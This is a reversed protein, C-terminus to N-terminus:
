LNLIEQTPTSSTLASADLAPAIASGRTLPESADRAYRLHPNGPRRVIEREVTPTLPKRAQELLAKFYPVRFQNYRRMTTIAHAIRESALSHGQTDLEKAANRVLGQARRLNGFVDATFLEALLRHLELHIFRAQSLLHQPTTEYYALSNPPFHADIRTRRGDKHRCRPHIALRECDLFIEVQNETLKIRLRRHRYTHPASYYDGEVLVYCDAYLTADKWEANEFAAAPLPKLAAKEMQEFRARRSVGFRSHKRENIKLACDALARNIEALSTFRTRRYRFRVYRMLIGVVGEVIAKDKPHAPRAPVITTGYHTGLEAYSPNLDPDYLHCKLVGTKLCDPVTVHPVGGYFEFLRRHSGLWNRSKMDEAAHAFLLQSFGLAGIFVYAAHIEGSVLDVWEMTDGAYDVEVREGPMFERATVSAQRYEPYKRYFQKWFNSYSTLSQAQEEWISKLAHGLGLDHIIAPWNLHRMWVPDVSAKSEGPARRTGDRVGRVTDRSCKLARAIERVDRGEALRRKIEQYRDVTFVRRAM